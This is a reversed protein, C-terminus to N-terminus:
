AQAQASPKKGKAPALVLHVRFLDPCLTIKKVTLGADRIAKIQQEAQGGSDSPVLISGMRIDETAVEADPFAAKAIEANLRFCMQMAEATLKAAEQQLPARESLVARLDDRLLAVRTEPAIIAESPKAPM